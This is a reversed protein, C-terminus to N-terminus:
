REVIDIAVTHLININEIIFDVNFLEQVSQCNNNNIGEQCLYYAQITAKYSYGTVIIQNYSRKLTTNPTM